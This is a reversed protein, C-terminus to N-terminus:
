HVEEEIFEVTMKNDMQYSGDKQLTIMKEELMQISSYFIVIKHSRMTFKQTKRGAEETDLTL